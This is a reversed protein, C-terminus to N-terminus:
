RRAALPTAACRLSHGTIRDRTCRLQCVSILIFASLGNHLSKNLQCDASTHTQVKSGAERTLFHQVDPAEVAISSSGSDSGSDRVAMM